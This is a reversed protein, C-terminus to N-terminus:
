PEGEVTSSSAGESAEEPPTENKPILRIKRGVRKIDGKDDLRRILTYYYAGNNKDLMERFRPIKRLEAQLEHHRVLKSFSSLIRRVADAMSEGSKNNDGSPVGFDLPMDTGFLLTAADLKKRLEAIQADANAKIGGWKHLDEQWRRIDDSTLLVETGTAKNMGTM